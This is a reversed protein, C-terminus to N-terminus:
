LIAYCIRIFVVGDLRNISNNEQINPIFKKDINGSFSSLNKFYFYSAIIMM